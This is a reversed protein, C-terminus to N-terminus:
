LVELSEIKFDDYERNDLSVSFIIKVHSGIPTNFYEKSFIRLVIDDVEILFDQTNIHNLTGDYVFRLRQFNKGFPALKRHSDFIDSFLEPDYRYLSEEEIKSHLLYDESFHKKLLEIEEDSTTQIGIAGDHGGGTVKTGPYKEHFRLLADYLSYGPVSRCSFSINGDKETGVFAPKGEQDSIRNAVLGILGGIPYSYKNRDIVLFGINDDSVVHEKLIDQTKQKREYNINRYGEIFQGYHDSAIIDAVIKETEGSVRGSANITPGIYYGISDETLVLDPDKIMFPSGFGTIFKLVRGAWSNKDKIFNITDLAYKVLLRNEALMPMVDSITAVAAFIGMERLLYDRNTTSWGILDRALKFAVLAGCIDENSDKTLHPNILIDAPPLNNEDPIHHDTVVVLLGNDKAYQIASNATIGNDVTVIVEAGLEIARNVHKEKMGYGDNLRDPIIYDVKQIGYEDLAMKMITTAMIGDVDYDGIICFHKQKHVQCFSIFEHARGVSTMQEQYFKSLWSRHRLDPFYKRIDNVDTIGNEAFLASEVLSFGDILISDSLNKEIYKRM